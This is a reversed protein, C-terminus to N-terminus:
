SGRTTGRRWGGGSGHATDALLAIRFDGNCTTCPNPTRGAQYDDLFPQVVIERFGDRADLTIHPIGLAHCTARARRVADPSCCSRAADPAEPDIWLRLTIGVAADGRDVIASCRSQRTSAAPCPSRPAAGPPFRRCRESRM